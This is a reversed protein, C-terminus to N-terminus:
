MSFVSLNTLKSKACLDLLQVLLSHPSDGTCKIIVSVTKDFSAIHSFQRDLEKLDVRRGKLVFGDKYVLVTLLDPDNVEKTQQAAPRNVDLHSLIDNQKLTVLFFIMLQFVVDIMPTMNLQPNEM